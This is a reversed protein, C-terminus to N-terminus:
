KKVKSFRMLSNKNKADSEFKGPRTYGHCLVLDEDDWRYIAYLTTGNLDEETYVLTIQKPTKDVDLKWTGAGVFRGDEKLTFTDEDFKVTMKERIEKATNKGGRVLSDFRWRGQFKAAEAKGDAASTCDSVADYAIGLKTQPLTLILLGLALVLTVRKM